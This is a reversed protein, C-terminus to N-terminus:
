KDAIAIQGGKIATTPADSDAAGPQNDYVISGDSVAWVKIRLRDLQGKGLKEGDIATVLFAYGAQGNVTAQGKYQARAGSVVLWEYSTSVVTFDAAHFRFQTNGTPTTAGKQYKSVFAFSAPGALAPNSVLAGAPSDITGGGTVFGSSPDFVVVYEFTKTTVGGDHDDVQVSVAYVGTATYAHTASIPGDADVGRTQQTTSGDGWSWTVTHDDSGPDSYSSSATVTSGLAVPSLPASIATVTPAVNNVTVPFSTTGAGGDDDTVNVNVTYVDDAQGAEDDAYTHTVAVNGGAPSPSATTGDGFSVSSTHTDLTGPDTYTVTNTFSSGENVSISATGASVTPAVNSVTVNATATGEPDSDADDSVNLTLTAQGDDVGTITPTAASAPAVTAIGANSTSWVQTLPGDDYSGNTAQVTSGEAVTYPGGANAVPAQLPLRPNHYSIWDRVAASSRLDLNTSEGPLGPYLTPLIKSMIRDRYVRHGDFNPHATGSMDGQVWFTETLLGRMYTDDACIGHKAFRDHIGDVLNWGHYGANDAIVENLKREVDLDLWEYEARSLGPVRIDNFPKLLDSKPCYDGDDDQTADVYESIFVRNMQSAPLGFYPDGNAGPATATLATSLRDYLKSLRYNRIDGDAADGILGNHFLHESNDGSFEAIVVSLAVACIGAWILNFPAPVVIALPLCIVAALGVDPVVWDSPLGQYAPNCFLLAVCGTVVPAFGSDNGGISIYLADVERNGVLERAQTLQPDLPAMNKAEWTDGVGKYAELLGKAAEAGSCAVHIFTVSTKPDANEIVRAAQASGADASRHCRRDEWKAGATTFGLFDHQTPVDPNGEGSGYSDGISVILWDQVVVDGTITATGASSSITLRLKYVGEAPVTLDYDGCGPGGSLVGAGQVVQWTIVADAPDAYTSNCADLDVHWSTPAIPLPSTQPYRACAAPNDSTCFDSPTFYDVLSDGNSDPGFRKPMSWTFEVPDRPDPPPPDDPPDRPEGPENIVVGTGTGDDAHAPGAFAGAVLLV